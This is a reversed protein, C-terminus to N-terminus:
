LTVARGEKDARGHVFVISKKEEILFYKNCSFWMTFKIVRIIASVRLASVNPQCSPYGGYRDLTSQISIGPDISVWDNESQFVLPQHSNARLRFDPLFPDNVQCKACSSRQPSQYSLM